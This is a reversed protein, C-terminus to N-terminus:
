LTKRERAEPLARSSARGRSLAWVSLGILGIIVIVCAAMGSWNWGTMYDGNM